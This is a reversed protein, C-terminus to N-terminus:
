KEKHNQSERLKGNWFRSISFCITAFVVCMLIRPIDSTDKSLLVGLMGCFASLIWSITAVLTVVYNTKDSSVFKYIM